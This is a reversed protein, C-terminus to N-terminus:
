IPQGSSDWVNGTFTTINGDDSMPGYAAYGKPASGYWRNNTINVNNYTYSNGSSLRAYLTYSGGGIWNGNIETNNINAFDTSINIAGTDGLWNGTSDTVLINNGWLKNNGGGYIEIGDYHPGSQNSQLKEIFNAQVIINGGITMGNEFGHVYNGCITADGGTIGIYGGNDTYVENNIIKTGTVGDTITIGYYGQVDIKSNKITVNNASVSVGGTINKSDITMGATSATIAGSSTLTTGAPVGTNAATPKASPLAPFSSCNNAPTSSAAGFKIASNGSASGDSITTVGSKTASEPEISATTVTSAHLILSIGLWFFVVFALGVIVLIFYRVRSYTHSDRGKLNSFRM